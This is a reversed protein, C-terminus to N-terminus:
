DRERWNSAMGRMGPGAGAASQAERKKQWDAETLVTIAEVKKKGLGLNLGPLEKQALKQFDSGVDDLEHGLSDARAVQYDAPRGEYNNVSYYLQGLLERIREEGTIMGGEKTAVIRSRLKDCEGALQQLSGRL